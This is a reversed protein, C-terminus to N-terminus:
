TTAIPKTSVLRVFADGDQRAADRVDAVRASSTADVLARQIADTALEMTDGDDEYPDDPNPSQLAYDAADILQRSAWVCQQPDDSSWARLAYEVSAVANQVFPSRVTWDDGDEDPYMSGAHDALADVVAQDVAGGEALLWGTDLATDLAGQDGGDPSVGWRYTALLREAIGIAFRIKQTREFAAAAALVAAEDYRSTTM